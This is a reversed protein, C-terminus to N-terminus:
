IIWYLPVKGKMNRLLRPNQQHWHIGIALATIVGAIDANIGGQLLFYWLLVFLSMYVKINTVEKKCAAFMLGSVVVALFVYEKILTKSFFIAINLIAGLDDVTALTLLFAAVGAPMKNKFFGYVGMAFAIDTAM